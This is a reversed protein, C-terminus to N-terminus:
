QPSSYMFIASISFLWRGFKTNNVMIERDKEHNLAVRSWNVRIHRICEDINESRIILIYQKMAAMLFFSVPGIMRIKTDLDTDVLITCLTCPIFLFCILLCSIVTLIMCGIKEVTTECLTLPWVGIPKLFWRNMQISYNWGDTISKISKSKSYEPMIIVLDRRHM